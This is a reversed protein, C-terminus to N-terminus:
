HQHRKIPLKKEKLETEHELDFFRLMQQADPNWCKRGKKLGFVKAPQDSLWSLLQELTFVKDEKVFKTYLTSFATESGTIGFAANQMGGQKEQKAHPAHDTAILDITGDLLGVLLAAQDEKSRLPPNMKYYGNDKPIDDETLLLHHPAAECTVNIGCAKAMRVL